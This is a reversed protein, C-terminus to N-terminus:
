KEKEHPNSLMAAFFCCAAASYAPRHGLFAVACFVIGLVFLAISLIRRFIRNKEPTM